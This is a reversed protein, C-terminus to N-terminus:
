ERYRLKNVLKRLKFNYISFEKGLYNNSHFYFFRILHIYM